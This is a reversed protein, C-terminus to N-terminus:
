DASDISFHFLRNLHVRSLFEKCVQYRELFETELAQRWLNVENITIKNSNRLMYCHCYIIDRQEHVNKCNVHNSFPTCSQTSSLQPVTADTNLSQLEIVSPLLEM